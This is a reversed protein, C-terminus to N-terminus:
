EFEYRRWIGVICYGFLLISVGMLLQWWGNAYWLVTTTADSSSSNSGLKTLMPTVYAFYLSAIPPYFILDIKVELFDPVYVLSATTLTFLMFIRLAIFVDVFIFLMSIFLFIVVSTVFIVHSSRSFQDYMSPRESFHNYTPQIPRPRSFQYSLGISGLFPGGGFDVFEVGHLRM